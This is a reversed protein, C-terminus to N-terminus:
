LKFEQCLEELLKKPIKKNVKRFNKVTIKSIVPQIKRVKKIVDKDIKLLDIVLSEAKLYASDETCIVSVCGYKQSFLDSFYVALGEELISTSGPAIPSICHIVEHAMQYIASGLNVQNLQIVLYKKSVPFWVQARECNECIEVGLITYSKDRPGFCKEAEQLAKGLITVITWTYSSDATKETFFIKTKTKSDLVNQSNAQRSMGVFVIILIMIVKKM